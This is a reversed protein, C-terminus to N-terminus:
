EKQLRRIKAEASDRITKKRSESLDPSKDLLEIARRAEALALDPRGVAEYGAALSDHAGASIPAIDVAWQLTELAAQKNSRMLSYALSNLRSESVLNDIVRQLDKDTSSERALARAEGIKGGALLVQLDQGTRAARAEFPAKRDLRSKLFTVAAAITDRTQQDDDLIDFGHRGLPHSVLNIDANLTMMRNVFLEVSRNISPSDLGARGILVSPLASPPNELYSIPSYRKMADKPLGQGPDQDRVDLIAYFSVLCRIYPKDGRLGLSLHPGGGSFAWLALREPDIHYRGANERVHAIAAEVDSFSTDMDKAAMSLYRHNFTVGVLGSAAMLRGYSTYVGWDKPPPNPNSGLPGGHIFIVAPLRVNGAVDPPLCIDMKMEAQGDRRYVVDPHVVAKDMGPVSYYIPRALDQSASMAAQGLILMTGLGIARRKHM